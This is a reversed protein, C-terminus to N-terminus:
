DTKAPLFINFTTGSGAKSQVNILGGHDLIIKNSIALGLGIGKKTVETKTSFYPDFIRGLNEKPIGKGPDKISIKIYKGESLPHIKRGQNLLNSISIIIESEQEIADLSNLLMNKLAISLQKKDCRLKWLDEESEFIFRATGFESRLPQLVSEFLEKINEVSEEKVVSTSFIYLDDLLESARGSAAEIKGLPKELKPIGSSNRKILELNGLIITLINNFDHTVGNAVMRFSNLNSIKAREKEVLIRDSLDRLFVLQSERNEYEITNTGIEVDIIEGSKTMLHMEVKERPLGSWTENDFIRQLFEQNDSKLVLTLPKTLLEDKTYGSMESLKSNVYIFNFDKLIGIGDNSNEVLIRYREESQQLDKKTRYLNKITNKLKVNTKSINENIKQHIKGYISSIIVITLYVGSFRILIGTSFNTNFTNTLTLLINLLLFILSIIVGARIRLFFVLFLPATLTWLFLGSELEGFQFFYLSIALILFIISKSLVSYTKRNKFQLLLFILIAAATIDIAANTYQGSYVSFLGFIILLIIMFQGVFKSLNVYRIIFFDRSETTLSDVDSDTVKSLIEIFKRFASILM